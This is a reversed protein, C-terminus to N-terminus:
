AYTKKVVAPVGAVLVSDPTDGVVVAGAAVVNKKGVRVGPLVIAGACVWSGEGIVIDKTCCEGGIAGGGSRVVMHTSTKLSVFHAVRTRDGIIVSSGHHAAIYTGHNIEVAKGIRVLGSAINSEIRAAGYIMSGDSLIIRGDGVFVAERSLYVHEGVSVGAWRLMKVRFEHCRDPLFFSILSYLYLKQRQLM